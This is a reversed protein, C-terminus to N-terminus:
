VQKNLFSPKGVEKNLTIHLCSFSNISNLIQLSYNKWWAFSTFCHWEICCEFYNEKLDFLQLCHRGFFPRELEVMFMSLTSVVKKRQVADTLENFVGKQDENIVALCRKLDALMEENICAMRIFCSVFFSFFFSSSSGM